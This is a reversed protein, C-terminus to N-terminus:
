EVFGIHRRILQLLENSFKDGDYDLHGLNGKSVAHYLYLWSTEEPQWQDELGYCSCHSGHVEYLKGDQEYLVFASGEYSYCAYAAFLVHVHELADEKLNFESIVDNQSAFQGLYM